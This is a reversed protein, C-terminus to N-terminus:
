APLQAGCNNCFRAELPNAAGCQGCSNGPGQNETGAVPKAPPESSESGPHSLEDRFSETMERAGRRFENMAKGVGRGIEPLRAPGFIVLAVVVIVVLHWPQLGFPM